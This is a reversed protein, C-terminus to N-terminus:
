IGLDSLDDESEVKRAEVITRAREMYGKDERQALTKAAEAIQEKSAERNKAKLAAKIDATALRVAEALVPDGSARPGGARRAGFEYKAAYEDFEEQSGPNESDKARKAFNNRLNEHFTQNLASAEHESLVHGASYRIPAQFTRGAITITEM